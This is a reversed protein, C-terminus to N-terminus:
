VQDRLAPPLSHRHLPPADSVGSAPVPEPFQTRQMNALASHVYMREGRQHVPSLKLPFFSLHQPIVEVFVLPARVPRAISKLSFFPTIFAGFLPRNKGPASESPIWERLSLITM